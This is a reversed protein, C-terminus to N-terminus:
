KTVYIKEIAYGCAMDPYLSMDENNLHLDPFLKSHWKSEIPLFSVKANRNIFPYNFKADEEPIYKKMDKVLVVEKEELPDEQSKYGWKYFGWEKMLGMLDNVEERKNEFMTVYIEDVDSKLAYDIIIKIFREGLRM